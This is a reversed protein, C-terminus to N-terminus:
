YDTPNDASVIAPRLLSSLERISNAGDAGSLLIIKQYTEQSVGFYNLAYFAMFSTFYPTVETPMSGDSAWMALGKNELTSYVWDYANQIRADDQSQLAQGVPVLKMLEATLQVAEAKTTM